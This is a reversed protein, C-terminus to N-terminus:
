NDKWSYISEDEGDNYRSKRSHKKDKKSSKDMKKSKSRSKNSKTKHKSGTMLSAGGSYQETAEMGMGIDEMNGAMLGSMLKEPNIQGIDMQADLNLTGVTMRPQNYYGDDQRQGIEEIENRDVDFDDFHEEHLESPNINSLNLNRLDKSEGFLKRTYNLNLQRQKM